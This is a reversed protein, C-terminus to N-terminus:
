EFCQERVSVKAVMSIQRRYLQLLAKRFVYDCSKTKQAVLRIVTIEAVVVKLYSFGMATEFFLANARCNTASVRNSVISGKNTQAYHRM